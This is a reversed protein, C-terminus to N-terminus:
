KYRRRTTSATGCSKKHDVHFRQGSDLMAARQNRNTIQGAYYTAGRKTLYWTDGISGKQDSDEDPEVLVHVPQGKHTKPTVASVVPQHCVSCAKVDSEPVQM